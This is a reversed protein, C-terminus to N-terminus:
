TRGIARDVLDDLVDDLRASRGENWLTEFSEEGLSDRLMEVTRDYRTLEVPALPVGIDERTAAATGLLRVASATRGRL